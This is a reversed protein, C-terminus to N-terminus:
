GSTSPLGIAAITYYQNHEEDENNVGGNTGHDDETGKDMPLSDKMTVRLRQANDCAQAVCKLTAGYGITCLTRLSYLANYVSNHAM